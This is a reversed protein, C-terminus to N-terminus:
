TDSIVTPLRVTALAGGEPHNALSLTGGHLLVIRRALALGLGAGERRNSAFPQFLRDVIEPAIGRGHDHISIEAWGEVASIAVDVPRESLAARQAEDANKLLNRLARLLMLEDAAIAAGNEIRLEPLPAAGLAPDAIAKRLLSELDVKELRHEGPRAFALFDDVVRGLSSAERRLEDLDHRAEASLERRDLLGAYGQITALSNRLEHAVGASLEGLQAVSEALRLEADRRAGGSPDADSERLATLARDFTALLLDIDRSASHERLAPTDRARALLQELPQILARFYLIAVVVVALSLGLVVPTLIRLSRRVAGLGAAPSELRVLWRERPLDSSGAPLDTVSAVPAFPVLAVIRDGSDTDPGSVRAKEFNPAAPLTRREIGSDSFGFSWRVIGRRDHIAVAVGAPLARSLEGFGSEHAAAAREAVMQGQRLAWDQRESTLNAVASRYSFLTVAALAAFLLLALPLLIPAERGLGRRRTPPSPNPSRTAPSHSASSNAARM